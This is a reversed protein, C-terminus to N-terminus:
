QTSSVLTSNDAELESIKIAQGGGEALTLLLKDDNTIEKKYITVDTPNVKYSANKGDAYVEAVYKKGDELFDLNIEVERKEDNTIAGIFWNESARDKRAMAVYEGIEATLLKSQEWDTPVDKIFQFAPNGQYHEPFDAAMQVPSYLVVYLALQNALTTHTSNGKRYEDFNTKFIGPTYDLPGGLGMTFPLITTHSAPNGDSWANYEMGRMAERSLMNPYTRRIGTPKIPEHAVVCVKHKAATELVKRYHNVMYQGHHHQGKEESKIEGVYGTKLANMDKEMLLDFADEMQNEYTLIDGSTEHHGILEVGKEKAYKSLYDLDYDPYAVIFNFNPNTIWEEWGLNWGEVLVGGFGNDAAFDIYKKTNETTAGHNPGQEWTSKNMHMEWWIGLYKMPKIWSVDEIKSPENLNLILNSEVLDAVEDGIQITRWPTHMPTKRKVKVGDPWPVLHSEFGTVGSEKELTMTSYNTLNAEHISMYIGEKSEFTAPTHMLTKVDNINKSTYLKEYTDFGHEWTASVTDCPQYWVKYNDAINFDTEESLIEISSIAEQTPIFYRFGVGDDFVRFIIDMTQEKNEKQILTVIVESYENKINKRQGWVTNWNENFFSKKVNGVEFNEMLDPHDKLVFGLQSPAIVQKGKFAVSYFPKGESVEIKVTIDDSPSKVEETFKSKKENQCSMVLLFSLVTILKKLTM